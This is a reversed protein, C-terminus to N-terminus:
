EKIKVELKSVNEDKIWSTEESFDVLFGNPNDKINEVLVVIEQLTNDETYDETDITVEEDITRQLYVTIKAM